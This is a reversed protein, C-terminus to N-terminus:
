MCYTCCLCGDKRREWRTSSDLTSLLSDYCPPPSARGERRGGDGRGEEEEEEVQEARIIVSSSLSPWDAPDFLPLLPSPNHRGGTPHFTPIVRENWAREVPGVERAHVVAPEGSSNEFWNYRGYGGEGGRGRGRESTPIRGGGGGNEEADLEAQLRRAYVADSHVQFSVPKERRPQKNRACVESAADSASRCLMRCVRGDRLLFGVYRSNSVVHLVDEARLDPLDRILGASASPDKWESVRLSKLIRRKAKHPPEGPKLKVSVLKVTAQQPLSM